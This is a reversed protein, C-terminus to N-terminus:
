PMRAANMPLVNEEFGLRIAIGDGHPARWELNQLCVPRFCSQPPRNKAIDNSNNPFGKQFAQESTVLIWNQSDRGARNQAQVTRSRRGIMLLKGEEAKEITILFLPRLGQINKYIFVSM